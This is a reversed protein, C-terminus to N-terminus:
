GPTFAGASERKHSSMYNGVNDPDLLLEIWDSMFAPSLFIHKVFWELSHRDPFASSKASSRAHSNNGWVSSCLRFWRLLDTELAQQLFAIIM